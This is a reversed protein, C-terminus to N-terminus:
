ERAAAVIYNVDTDPSMRWDWSLPDFTFGQRKVISLGADALMAELTAPALFRNWDHTGYPIWRLIYEAALKALAFSKLTKNITGVFLLGGPKALKACTALFEAPDATHEVVELALVVDFAANEQALAEATASCYRVALGSRAAHASAANVTEAGADIGTVAFGLRAMPESLLGGGCGVDLLTLGEFPRLGRGAREFHSAALERLFKLRVPNFKHLPAFPGQADWWTEALAAFKAVEGPDVSAAKTEM